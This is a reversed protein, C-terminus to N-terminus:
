PKAPKRHPQAAFADSSARGYRAGSFPLFSLASSATRLIPPFFVESSLVCILCILSLRNLSPINQEFTDPPMVFVVAGSRQTFLQSFLQLSARAASSAPISKRRGKALQYPSPPSAGVSPSVRSAIVQAVPSNALVFAIVIKVVIWTGKM